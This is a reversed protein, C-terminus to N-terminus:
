VNVIRRLFNLIDTHRKIIPIFITRNAFLRKFGIATNLLCARITTRMIYTAVLLLPKFSILLSHILKSLFPVIVIPFFNHINFVSVFDAFFTLFGRSPVIFVIFLFNHCITIFWVYFRSSGGTDNGVKDHSFYTPNTGFTVSSGLNSFNMNMMIVM